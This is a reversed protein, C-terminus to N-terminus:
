KAGRRTECEGESFRVCPAPDHPCRKGKVHERDDAADWMACHQECLYVRRFEYTRAQTSSGEACAPCRVTVPIAISM